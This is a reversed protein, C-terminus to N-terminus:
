TIIKDNINNLCIFHFGVIILLWIISSLRRRGWVILGLILRIISRSWRTIIHRYCSRWIHATMWHRRTLIIVWITGRLILHHLRWRITHGHSMHSTRGWVSWWHRLCMLSGVHHWMHSKRLVHVSIALLNNRLLILLSFLYKGCNIIKM